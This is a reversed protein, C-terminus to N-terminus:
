TASRLFAQAGVSNEILFVILNNDLVKENSIEELNFMNWPIYIEPFTWKAPTLKSNQFYLYFNLHRLSKGAGNKNTAM